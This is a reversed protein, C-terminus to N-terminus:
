KTVGGFALKLLQRSFKDALSISEAQPWLNGRSSASHEGDLLMGILNSCITRIIKTCSPMKAM